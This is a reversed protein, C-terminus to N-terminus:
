EATKTEKAHRLRLISVTANPNTKQRNVRMKGLPPLVLSEGAVIADGLTALTADLVPRVDKPKLGSREVVRDLFEKRKIINAVNVAEAEATQAPTTDVVYPKATKTASTVTAMKPKTTSAKPTKSTTAKKTTKKTTTKKSTAREM